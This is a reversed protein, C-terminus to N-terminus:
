SHNTNETSRLSKHISVALLQTVMYTSTNWSLCSLPLKNAIEHQVPWQSINRSNGRKWSHSLGRLKSKGRSNGVVLWWGGPRSYFELPPEAWLDADVGDGKVYYVRWFKWNSVIMRIQSPYYKQCRRMRPPKILDVSCFGNLQDTPIENRRNGASCCSWSASYGGHPPQMDNYNHPTM